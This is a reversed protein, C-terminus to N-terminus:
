INKDSSPIMLCYKRALSTVYLSSCDASLALDLEAIREWGINCHVIAVAFKELTGNLLVNGDLRIFSVSIAHLRCDKM